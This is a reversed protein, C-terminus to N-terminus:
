HIPRRSSCEKIESLTVRCTGYELALRVFDKHSFISHRETLRAVLALIASVKAGSAGLEKPAAEIEERPRSFHRLQKKGFGKTEFRGDHYTVEIEYSLRQLQGSRSRAVDQGPADRQLLARWEDDARRTANIV